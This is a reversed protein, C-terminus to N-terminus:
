GRAALPQASQVARALTAMDADPGKSMVAIRVTGLDTIWAKTEDGSQYAVWTKGDIDRTGSGLFKSQESDTGRNSLFVILSEETAATQTLQIYAGADTIWGVNSSTSGGVPQTTGSNPKWGSPVAPERIPFPMSAADARLAAAVEFPPTRDDSADGQLGVSCNQSAFVVFVCLLLLPILSWIM